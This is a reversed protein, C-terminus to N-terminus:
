RAGSLDNISGFFETIFLAALDPVIANGYGEIRGVRNKGANRVVRGLEPQGRGLSRPVGYALPLVGPEIPRSRGNNGRVGVGSAWPSGRAARDRNVWWGQSRPLDSYALWYVRERKHPAGAGCATVVTAWVSYGDAELDDFVADIWGHRISDASQEGLMLVPSGQRYLRRFEPWLHREDQMGTQPGCNAFPQCPCSGTWVRFDDPVGALKLALPWGAIGAFFHCQNYESLQDGKVQRIDTEDVVCKPIEGAAALNRCWEAHFPSWENLYNM